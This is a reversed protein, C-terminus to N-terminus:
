QPLDHYLMKEWDSVLQNLKMIDDPQLLATKITSRLCGAVSNTLESAKTVMQSTCLPDSKGHVLKSRLNYFDRFLKFIETKETATSGLFSGARHALRFSLEVADGGGSLFLSEGAIALDIIRDELTERNMSSSFRRIARHLFSRNNQCKWASKWLRVIEDAEASNADFSIISPSAASGCENISYGFSFIEQECETISNGLMVHGDKAVRCVAVFLQEEDYATAAQLQALYDNGVKRDEGIHKDSITRKELVLDSVELALGRDRNFHDHVLDLGRSLLVEMENTSLRRLCLSPTLDITAIDLRAGKLATTRRHSIKDSYLAEELLLYDSRFSADDFKTLGRGRARRLTFCCIQVRAVHSGGLVSRVLQDAHKALEPTQNIVCKLNVLEASEKLPPDIEGFSVAYVTDVYNQLRFPSTATEKLWRKKPIDVKPMVNNFCDLNSLALLHFARMARYFNENKM